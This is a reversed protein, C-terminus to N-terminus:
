PGPLLLTEQTVQGPDSLGPHCLESQVELHHRGSTKEHDPSLGARLGPTRALRARELQIVKLVNDRLRLRETVQNGRRQLSMMIEGAASYNRLIM